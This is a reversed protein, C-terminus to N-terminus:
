LIEVLEIEFKLNHGALPHNADLMIKDDKIDIISVIINEEDPQELELQMGLEPEMDPPLQDRTVEVAMEKFYPGYAEDHDVDVSKKEGPEMGEVASDFGPIVEGRGVTFEVPDGGETTEFVTGDELMGTYHVKVADGEKAKAM